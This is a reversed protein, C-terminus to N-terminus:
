KTRGALKVFLPSTATGSVNYIGRVYGVTAGSIWQDQAAFDGAAPLAAATFNKWQFWSSGDPSVELEVVSGSVGRSVYATLDNLGTVDITSGSTLGSVSADASAITSVWYNGSSRPMYVPLPSVTSDINPM